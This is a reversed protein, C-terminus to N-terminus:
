RPDYAPLELGKVQMALDPAKYRSALAKSGEGIEKGLGRNVATDEIVELLGSTKGFELEADLKGTQILEM